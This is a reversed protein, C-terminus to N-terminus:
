ALAIAGLLILFTNATLQVAMGLQTLAAFVAYVILAYRAASAVVDSGTVGRAIGAL